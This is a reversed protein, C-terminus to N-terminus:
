RGLLRARREHLAALDAQLRPLRRAIERLEDSDLLPDEADPAAPQSILLKLAEEDRAIEQELAAIRPELERAAQRDVGTGAPTGPVPTLTAGADTGPPAQTGPLTQGRPARARGPANFPDAAVGADPAGSLPAAAAGGAPRQPPPPMAMGPEVLEAAYGGPVRGPDPTYRVVGDRDTWRYLRGEAEAHSAPAGALALGATALAVLPWGGPRRAPRRM